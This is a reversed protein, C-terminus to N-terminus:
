RFEKQFEEVSFRCYDIFGNVIEIDDPGSVTGNALMEMIVSKVADCNDCSKFSHDKFNLIYFM